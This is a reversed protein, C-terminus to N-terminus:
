RGSSRRRAIPASVDSAAGRPERSGGQGWAPDHNKRGAGESEEEVVCVVGDRRGQSSDSRRKLASSGAEGRAEDIDANHYRTPTMTAATSPMARRASLDEGGIVLGHRATQRADIYAHRRCRTSANLVLMAQHRSRPSCQSHMMALGSGLILRRRGDRRDGRHRRCARRRAKSAHPQGRLPASRHRRRM